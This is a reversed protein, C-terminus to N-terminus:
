HKSIVPIALPLPVRSLAKTGTTRKAKSRSLLTVPHGFSNICYGEVYVRLNQKAVSYSFGLQVVGQKFGEKSEKTIALLATTIPNTPATTASCAFKENAVRGKAKRSKVKAGAALLVWEDIGLFITRTSVLRGPAGKVKRLYKPLVKSIEISLRTSM